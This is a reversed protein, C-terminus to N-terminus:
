VAVDELTTEAITIDELTTEAIAVDELTTEAMSERWTYIIGWVM